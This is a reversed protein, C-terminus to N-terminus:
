SADRNKIIGHAVESYTEAAEQALYSALNISGLNEANRQIIIGSLDTLNQLFVGKINKVGPQVDRPLSLDYIYLPHGLKSKIDKFHAEKLVFHPSSTASILVDSQEIVRPLDKILFAEGKGLAALAKAKLYNKHAVFDLRINGSNHDVILEAIKGTGIVAIRLPTAPNIRRNLDDFLIDAINGAKLGVKSQRRIKEALFIAEKWLGKLERPFHEQFVWGKLQLLIAEEGELWSELGCALRLAYRFVEKGTYKIYAHKYFEPFDRFFNKIQTFAEDANSAIGYIEIRNCTRLIAFRGNGYHTLFDSIKRYDRYASELLQLHATKFSIGILYFYM